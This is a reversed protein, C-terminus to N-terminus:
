WATPGENCPNAISPATGGTESFEVFRLSNLDGVVYRGQEEQYIVVYNNGVEFLRGPWRVLEGNGMLFTAAIYAGIERGLMGRMSGQYAEEVSIPSGIVDESLGHQLSSEPTPPQPMQQQPMQHPQMQPMQQAHMQAMQQPMMQPPMPQYQQPSMTNHQAQPWPTQTGQVHPDQMTYIDTSTGNM